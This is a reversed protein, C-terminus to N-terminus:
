DLVLNNSATTPINFSVLINFFILFHCIELQLEISALNITHPNSTVWSVQGGDFEGLMIHRWTPLWTLKEM